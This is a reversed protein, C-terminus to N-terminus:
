EYSRPNPFLVCTCLCRWLLSTLGLANRPELQAEKLRSGFGAVIQREPNAIGFMLFGLGQLELGGFKHHLGWIVAFCARTLM